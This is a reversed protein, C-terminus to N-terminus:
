VYYLLQITSTSVEPTILSQNCIYLLDNIMEVNVCNKSSIFVFCYYFPSFLMIAYRLFISKCLFFSFGNMDYLRVESCDLVVFQFLIADKSLIGVEM